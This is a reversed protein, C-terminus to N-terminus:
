KLTYLTTPGNPRVFIEKVNDKGYVKSMKSIVPKLYSTPIVAIVSGAFGGGNIKVAGHNECAEMLLDCAELPSGKYENGVMMNKLNKTSSERSENIAKLFAEEDKDKLARIARIVRENETYFHVARSYSMEDLSNKM